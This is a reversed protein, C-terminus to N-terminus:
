VVPECGKCLLKTCCPSTVVDRCVATCISCIFDDDVERDIFWETPYGVGKVLKDLTVSPSISSTAPFSSAVTPLVEEGSLWRQHVLYQMACQKERVNLTSENGVKEELPPRWRLQFGYACSLHYSRKDECIAIPYFFDFPLFCLACTDHLQRPTFSTFRAICDEPELIASTTM